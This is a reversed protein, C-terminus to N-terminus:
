RQPIAAQKTWVLSMRPSVPDPHKVRNQQSPPLRDRASRAATHTEDLATLARALTGADPWAAATTSLSFDLPRELGAVIVEFYDRIAAVEAKAQEYAEDAAVYSEFLNSM